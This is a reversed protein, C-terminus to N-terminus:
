KTERVCVTSYKRKLARAAPLRSFKDTLLDLTIELTAPSPSWGLVRKARDGLWQIFEVFRLHRDDALFVTREHFENLADRDSQHVIRVLLNRMALQRLSGLRDRVMTRM